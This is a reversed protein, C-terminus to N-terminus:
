PQVARPPCKKWGPGRVARGPTAGTAEGDRLVQVGNVFVHRMGVSYRHPEEYTARDGTTAPDFIALDAFFGKELKGRHEIRLNQAPLWSLKRVAEQLTLLKEERVYRGLLRAFNGYRRPHVPEADFPPEIAVAGADSGFSVWPRVLGKRINDESMSHFITSVRSDDELVLELATEEPSKGRLEAIETLRKGAHVRLAPNRFGTPQVTTWDRPEAKMEAVARARLEPQRLREMMARHGGERLWYPLRSDLGTGSATYLYMNATVAVGAARAAEIRAIAEDMLPWNPRGAAKLHYAEVRAGTRRGIEILEDIAALLGSGENRIHSIYMGGCRAAEGTLAVLEDTEAYVAPIYIMSSGVGMAGEDMAVRVLERMRLLQEPTPDLDNQGLEFARITSHGAFSAFNVGVGKKELFDLYGGLTTWTIPYRINTQARQAEAIASPTWPGMSSGEGMVELTVGQKLDSLARPDHILTENAWSLMNIFGPAVALGRADVETAGRGKLAPGVYAIRDGRLGVDGRYPEGGRGDYVTGGRIVVDYARASAPEPRPPAEAAPRSTTCAALGLALFLLAARFSSM